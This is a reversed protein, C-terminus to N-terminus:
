RFYFIANFDLLGPMKLKSTVDIIQICGTKQLEEVIKDKLELHTFINVKKVKCVAM